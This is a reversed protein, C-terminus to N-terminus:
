INQSCSSSKFHFLFRKKTMKLPSETALFQGLTSLAGKIKQEKATFLHM